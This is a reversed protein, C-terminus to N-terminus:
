YGFEFDVKGRVSVSDWVKLLSPLLASLSHVQWFTMGATHSHIHLTNTTGWHLVTHTYVTKEVVVVVFFDGELPVTARNEKLAQKGRISVTFWACTQFLARQQWLLLATGFFRAVAAITHLLAIRSRCENIAKHNCGRGNLVVTWPASSLSFQAKNCLIM